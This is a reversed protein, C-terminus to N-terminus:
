PLSDKISGQFEHNYDFSEYDMGVDDIRRGVWITMLLWKDRLPALPWADLGQHYRMQIAPIMAYGAFLTKVHGTREFFYRMMTHTYRAADMPYAHYRWVFPTLTFLYGGNHVLRLMESAAEMPALLHEFVNMASVISYSGPELHANCRQINGLVRNQLTKNNKKGIDPPLDMYDLSLYKTSRRLCNEVKKGSNGGVDLSRPRGRGVRRARQSFESIFDCLVLGWSGNVMRMHSNDSPIEYKSFNFGKAFDPALPQKHRRTRRSAAVQAPPYLM